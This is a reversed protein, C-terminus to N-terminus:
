VVSKRDQPIPWYINHPEIIAANNNWLWGGPEYYNNLRMVRDYWWSRQGLDDLSYGDIQQQAMINSVRVMEAHRTEEVYLERGREDFIFDITVDSGTIPLANSRERVQNIDNAAAPLNDAWFYAEARLLYTEALRYVYSDGHGGGRTSEELNSPNYTKYHPWSFWRLSTDSPTSFFQWNIPEEYNPSEPVNYTIESMEIWNIDARRLDPTDGWTHTGDDWIDFQYFNSAVVIGQGRMLTDGHATHVDVGRAGTQDAVDWWHPTFNSALSQNVRAGDPASARDVLGLITESNQSDHINMHRHLDWIVNRSPDDADVGFRETMLSFPGQIVETAADVAKDWERNALYVKTLLHLAAFRTPINPNATDPMWEVAWELDTQIKELIAWRSYTQFDLKAGMIEEGTYPVDGYSHVLWYYM